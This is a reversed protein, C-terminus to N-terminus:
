IRTSVVFDAAAGRKVSYVDRYPPNNLRRCIRTLVVGPILVIFATSQPRGAVFGPAPFAKGLTAVGPCRLDQEFGAAQDNGDLLERVLGSQLSPDIRM